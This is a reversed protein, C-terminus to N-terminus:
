PHKFFNHNPPRLGQIQLAKRKGRCVRSGMPEGRKVRQTSTQPSVGLRRRAEPTSVCGPPAQPAIPNKLHQTRRMREPANPTVQEGDSFGGMLWRLRTSAAVGLPDALAQVALRKGEPPTTRPENLSSKWRRCLSAVRRESLNEGTATKADQGDLGGSLLAPAHHVVVRRIREVTDQATLCLPPSPVKWLVDGRGLARTKQGRMFRSKARDALVDIKVGDLGARM